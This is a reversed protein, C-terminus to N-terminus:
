ALKSEMVNILKESKFQNCVMDDFRPILEM